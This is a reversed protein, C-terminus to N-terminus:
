GAKVPIHRPSANRKPVCVTLVGDAIRSSARLGDAYEPLTLTRYWDFAADEGPPSGAALGRGKVLLTLGSSPEWSVTATHRNGGPVDARILFERENEFVDTAPTRLPRSSLQEFEGNAIPVSEGGHRAPPRRLKERLKSIMDNWAM